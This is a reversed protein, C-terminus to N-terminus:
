HAVTSVTRSKLATAAMIEVVLNRLNCGHAAFSRRLEAAQDVGYARVPQRVLHHFLQEVIADQVEESGALFKSLDVAGSFRVVQGSRTQYTGSADIPRGKEQARFRGVADFHELTFGLPNIVGHCSQCAQPRTQLLVRERTTLDPHLDPALRAVAEPPPRLGQGLVSRVLFVGRHIPSSTETYAFTAMLYPHSLVGARQGPDLTVKQFPADAPLQVGYFQALKGNLYLYDACLL